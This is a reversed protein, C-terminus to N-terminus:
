SYASLPLSTKSTLGVFAVVFPQPYRVDVAAKFASPAQGSGAPHVALWGLLKEDCPYIPEPMAELVFHIAVDWIYSFSAYMKDIALKLSPTSSSAMDCSSAPARSDRDDSRAPSSPRSWLAIRQCRTRAPWRALVVCIAGRTGSAAPRSGAM